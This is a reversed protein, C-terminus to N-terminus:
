DLRCQDIGGLYAEVVAEDELLEDAKGERVMQGTELVYGRDAVSLAMAANQEVLLITTGEKRINEIVSFTEEVLIPALGLSPEDLLMMRPRAMLGRGIALMQQEGGSLSWGYSKRREALGPFISLVRDMDERVQSKAHGLAFAAVELNETVTLGPFIKRGEPIHTLGRRAITEPAQGLLSRGGFAVKGRAHVVGSIARLLTSKGAGNAGVLTVVEGEGVHLSVGRLAQVPGYFADLSDIELLPADSLRDSAAAVTMM